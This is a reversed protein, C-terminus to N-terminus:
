SLKAELWLFTCCLLFLIYFWIPNVGEERVKISNEEKTFEENFDGLSKRTNKIKQSARLTEWASEKFVYIWDQENDISQWGITSPWWSGGYEFQLTANQKLAIEDKNVNIKSSDSILQVESNETSIQPFEYNIGKEKKKGAKNLINTWFSAYDKGQNGLIWTYSDNILNLVVKGKGFLKSSILIEGAENKVLHQAGTLPQITLFTNSPFTNKLAIQGDWTLKMSKPIAKKSEIIKFIKNYFSSAPVMADAKIILGMGGNVQNQIAQNEIGSIRSLEQIDGILVDFNNLLTTNIRTLDIKSSNLFETNFKNTSITTRVALGFGQGALWNKLFKHEFDPSAALILIRMPEKAKVWIPIDEKNLTDGKSLTILSYIGKDLHKPISKLEFSASEKSIIVSDLNTGMGELVLKIEKKKSNKYNGQILLEEGSRIKQPWNISTIGDSLDSPHFILNKGKLGELEHNELGFGFLHFNQLDPNSDLFQNIDSIYKVKKDGKAIEKDTSFLDLEKWNELSDKQYGETLLIASNTQKDAYQRHYKLPNLIFFLAIVALLSASIRWSLNSRNARKVEKFLIFCLLLGLAIYIYIQNM